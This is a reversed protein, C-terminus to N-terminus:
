YVFVSQMHAAVVAAMAPKQAPAVLIQVVEAAVGAEVINDGVAVAATCVSM